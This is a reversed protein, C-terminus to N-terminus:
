LFAPKIELIISICYLYVERHKRRVLYAPSLADDVEGTSKEAATKEMISCALELNDAVVM